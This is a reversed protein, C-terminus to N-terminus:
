FITCPYIELFCISFIKSTFSLSPSPNANTLIIVDIYNSHLIKWRNTADTWEKKKYGWKWPNAHVCTDRRESMTSQWKYLSCVEKIRQHIIRIHHYSCLIMIDLNSACNEEALRVCNNPEMIKFNTGYTFIKRMQSIFYRNM